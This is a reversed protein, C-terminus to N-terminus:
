KPATTRSNNLPFCNARTQLTTPRTKDLRHLTKSQLPGNRAAWAFDLAFVKEKLHGQQRPESRVWRTARGAFLPFCNAM